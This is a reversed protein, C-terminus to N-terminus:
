AIRPQPRTTKKWDQTVQSAQSVQIQRHAGVHATKEWEQNGVVERIVARLASVGQLLMFPMYTVIASLPAYWPLKLEYEKAFEYAGIILAVVQFCLAYLPLFTIMAGLASLHVWLGLVIDIPMLVLLAAQIIPCSLTYFALLRQKREPLYQWARTRMVQIFGQNWRTRQKVFQEISHPTEERTAYRPDYITRIPHGLLSLRIGIEADETLCADNWGGVSQLITRPIFLTNGGLPIMGVQAHMHLRSKFWFFYELCNHLGFWHDRFNILQVGAQIIGLGTEEQLYRSNIVNFIDPSIDDEADFVTVVENTAQRLGVNLGHPKNIPPNAFTVVAVNPSGIEAIARKAEAITGGDSEHCIVLVQLLEKPYNADWVRHITDYIVEEEHRAPLLVTFSYHPPSFPAHVGSEQLRDATEWSYLMFRLSVLSYIALAVALIDLLLSIM